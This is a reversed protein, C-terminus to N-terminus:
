PEILICMGQWSTEISKAEDTCGDVLKTIILSLCLIYPDGQTEECQKNSNTHQNPNCHSACDGFLACAHTSLVVNRQKCQGQCGRGSKCSPLSIHWALWRTEATATKFVHLNDITINYQSIFIHPAGDPTIGRPARGGGRRLPRTPSLHRHSVCGRRAECGGRQLRLTAPAGLKIRKRCRWCCRDPFNLPITLRSAFHLYKTLGSFSIVGM